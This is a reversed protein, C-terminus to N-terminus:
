LYLTLPPPSPKLSAWRKLSSLPPSFTLYFIGDPCDLPAIRAAAQATALENFRREQDAKDSLFAGVLLALDCILPCAFLQEKM